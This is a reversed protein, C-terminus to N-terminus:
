INCHTTVNGMQFVSLENFYFAPCGLNDLVLSHLSYAGVQERTMKSDAFEKSVVWVIIGAEDAKEQFRRLRESMVDHCPMMLPAVTDLTLTEASWLLHACWDRIVYETLFAVYTLSYTTMNCWWVPITLFTTVKLAVNLTVSSFM